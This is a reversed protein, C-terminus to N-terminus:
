FLIRVLQFRNGAGTKSYIKAVHNNVTHASICLQDGIEKYTLGQKLLLIIERERETIKYHDFRETSPPTGAPEPLRYFYDLLFIIVLINFWFSYLPFSFSGAPLFPIRGPFAMPIMADIIIVPCFAASLFVFALCLRRLAPDKIRNRNKLLVGICYLLMGSFIVVLSIHLLTNLPWVFTYLIVLVFYLAALSSFITVYPQRWPVSIIWTSFYPLFFILFNLDVLVLATLGADIFHGYPVEVIKYFTKVMMLFILITLSITFGLYYRFWFVRKRKYFLASLAISLSGACLCLIHFLILLHKVIV